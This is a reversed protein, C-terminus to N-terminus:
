RKGKKSKSMVVAVGVIVALGAIGAIALGSGGSSKAPPAPPQVPSQQAPKAIDGLVFEQAEDLKGYVMEYAGRVTDIIAQDLVGGSIQPGWGSSPKSFQLKLPAGSAWWALRQEPTKGQYATSEILGWNTAGYLNKAVADVFELAGPKNGLAALFAGVVESQLSLNM